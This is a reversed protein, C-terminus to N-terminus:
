THRTDTLGPTVARESRPVVVTRAIGAPSAPTQNSDEVASTGTKSETFGYVITEPHSQPEPPCNFALRRGRDPSDIFILAALPGEAICDFWLTRPNDRM